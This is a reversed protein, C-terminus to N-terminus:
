EVLLTGDHLSIVALGAAMVMIDFAARTAAAVLLFWLVPTRALL